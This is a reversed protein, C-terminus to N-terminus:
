AVDVRSQLESTHEESRNPDVRIAGNYRERIARLIAVEDGAGLKVKLVSFGKAAAAAAREAMVEPEALGITFSTPPPGAPALGLLDPSRRPPFAPPHARA